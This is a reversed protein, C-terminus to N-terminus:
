LKRKHKGDSQRRSVQLHTQYVVAVVTKNWCDPSSFRSVALVLISAKPMFARVCARMHTKSVTFAELVKASNGGLYCKRNTGYLNPILAKRRSCLRYFKIHMCQVLRTSDVDMASSLHGKIGPLSRCSRRTSRGGACVTGPAARLNASNSPDHTAREGM